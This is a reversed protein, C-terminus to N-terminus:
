AQAKLVARLRKELLGMREATREAQTRLARLEALVASAEAPMTEAGPPEVGEGTGTLLWRLSVGLMGSLMQLRNARPEAQDDEWRALTTVKVGVRKALEKQTMGAAERAAALRDGFTAAEESYWGEVTEATM